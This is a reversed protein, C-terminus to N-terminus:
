RRVGEALLEPIGLVVPQNAVHSPQLIFTALINVAFATLGALELLASGPLVSWAWGAYGQYALVECSVRLACGINLLLLGVFMLKTSWLLRMGAFAPLIRQGISLVMVSIFGVTLAHRSAGWIGGSTDWISAGVGLFAAVLLWGYAVRVFFPFSAHVGKTKAPQDSPEFVRIAVIALTTSAVFLWTALALQGAVALVVGMGNVALASALVGTGLSKLGLFVRLWKASFGWVFPVLFGWGMLALYRQDFRHPFAPSDGRLSVYFNGAANTGVVALFGITATLVAWVWPDLGPKAPHQPRHQSIVRYFIM